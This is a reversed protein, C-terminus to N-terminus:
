TKGWGRARAAGGVTRVRPRRRGATSRPTRATTPPARLPEHCQERDSGAGTDRQARERGPDGVELDQLRTAVGRGSRASSAWSYRVEGRRRASSFTKNTASMVPRIPRWSAVMARSSFRSPRLRGRLQGLGVLLVLLGDLTSMPGLLVAAPEGGLQRLGLLPGALARQPDGLELLLEVYQDGLPLRGLVESARRLRNLVCASRDRRQVAPTISPTIRPVPVISGRSGRRTGNRSRGRRARRGAQPRQRLAPLDARRVGGVPEVDRPEGPQQPRVLAVAPSPRDPTSSTSTSTDSCPSRVLSFTTTRSSWPSIRAQPLTWSRAPPRISNRCM